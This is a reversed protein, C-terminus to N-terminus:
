YTRYPDAEDWCDVCIRKINDEADKYTRMAPNDATTCYGCEHCVLLDNLSSTSAEHKLEEDTANIRPDLMGIENGM